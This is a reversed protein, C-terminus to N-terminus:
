PGAGNQQPPPAAEELEAALKPDKHVRYLLYVTVLTEFSESVEQPVEIKTFYTFLWLVIVVISGGVAAAMTGKAQAMNM